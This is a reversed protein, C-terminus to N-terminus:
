PASESIAQTGSVRDKPVTCKEPELIIGGQEYAEIIYVAIKAGIRAMMSEVIVKEIRDSM